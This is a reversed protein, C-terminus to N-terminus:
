AVLKRSRHEHPLTSRRESSVILTLFSSSRAQLTRNSCCRSLAGRWQRWGRTRRHAAMCNGRGATRLAVVVTSLGLLFLAWIYPEPILMVTRAGLKVLTPPGPAFSPVVPELAYQLESRVSAREWISGQFARYGVFAVAYGQVSYIMGFPNTYGAGAGQRNLPLLPLLPTLTDIDPGALVEVFIDSSSAFSGDAM